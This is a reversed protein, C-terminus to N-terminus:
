FYGDTRFFSPLGEATRYNNPKQRYEEPVWVPEVYPEPEVEPEPTRDKVPVWVPEVYPESEAAPEVPIKKPGKRM